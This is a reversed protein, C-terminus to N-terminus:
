FNIKRQRWNNMMRALRPSPRVPAPPCQPPIEFTKQWITRQIDTPLLNTVRCFTLKYEDTTLPIYDCM